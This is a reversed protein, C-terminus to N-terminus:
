KLAINNVHYGKTGEYDYEKMSVNGMGGATAKENGQVWRSKVKSITNKESKFWPVKFYEPVNAVVDDFGATKIVYFLNQNGYGDKKTSLYKLKIKNLTADGSEDNSVFM